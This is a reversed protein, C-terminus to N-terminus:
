RVANCRSSGPACKGFWWLRATSVLKKAEYTSMGGAAVNVDEVELDDPDDLDTIDVNFTGRHTASSSDDVDDEDSSESGADADEDGAEAPEPPADRSAESAGEGWGSEWSVKLSLDWGPRKQNRVLV